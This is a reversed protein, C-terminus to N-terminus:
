RSEENELRITSDTGTEEPKRRSRGNRKAKARKVGLEGAAVARLIDRVELVAV